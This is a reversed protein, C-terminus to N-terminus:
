IRRGNCPREWICLSYKLSLQEVENLQNKMYDLAASVLVNLNQVQLDISSTTHKCVEMSGLVTLAPSIADERGAPLFSETEQVSIELFNSQSM